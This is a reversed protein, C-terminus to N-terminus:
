LDTGDTDGEDTLKGLSIKITPNQSDKLVGPLDQKYLEVLLGMNAQNIVVDEIISEIIGTHACWCILAGMDYIEFVDPQPTVQIWSGADFINRGNELEGLFAKEAFLGVIVNKAKKAEEKVRKLQAVFTIYEERDKYEAEIAKIRNPIDGKIRVIEEQLQRITREIRALRKLDELM